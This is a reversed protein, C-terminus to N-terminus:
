PFWIPSHVPMTSSIYWGPYAAFRMSTPATMAAAGATLTLLSRGCGPSMTISSPPEVPRSPIPPAVPEDFACSTCETSVHPASTWFPLAGSSRLICLSNRSPTAVRMILLHLSKPAPPTLTAIPSSASPRSISRSATGLFYSPRSPVSSAILSDCSLIAQTMAASFSFSNLSMAFPSFRWHTFTAVTVSSGRRTIHHFPLFITSMELSNRLEFPASLCISMAGSDGRSQFAVLRYVLPLVKAAPMRLTAESRLVQEFCPSDCRKSEVIPAPVTSMGKPPMLWIVGIWAITCLIGSSFPLVSSQESM